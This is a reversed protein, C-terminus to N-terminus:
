RSTEDLGALLRQLTASPLWVGRVMVGLPQRTSELDVLPNREVLLLDARKGVAVTGFESEKALFRAPNVTASKLVEFPTLGSEQMLQMEDHAAKGPVCFPFGFTDTGLMLPVGAARMSGTVRRCFSLNRRFLFGMVRERLPPRYAPIRAWAARRDPPLYRFVPDSVLEASRGENMINLNKYIVLTPQTWIGAERCRAAFHRVGPGSSRWAVPVWFALAVAFVLSASTLVTSALRIAVSARHRQWAWVGQAGARFTLLGILCALASILLLLPTSGSLLGFGPWVLVFLLCSVALALTTRLEPGFTLRRGSLRLVTAATVLGLAVLLIAGLSLLSPWFFADVARRSVFYLAVLIGSHALSQRNKLVAELGLLDPAHGILPIGIRRASENMTDYAGRSLGRGTVYRGDLVIEHFKIVDYGDAKQRRVEREVEEPTRVRPENVFEGSTYLNPALLRGEAIEKKWELMEPRGRLNLVTTIGYALFLPADKFKDRGDLHVHMDALGPLLYRGKADIVNADVPVPISTSPGVAAILGQRVVVTQRPLVTESDMPVVSANVFATVPGSSGSDVSTGAQVLSAGASFLLAAGFPANTRM